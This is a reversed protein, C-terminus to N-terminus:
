GGLLTPALPNMTGVWFLGAARLFKRHVTFNQLLHILRLRVGALRGRNLDNKKKAAFVTRQITM